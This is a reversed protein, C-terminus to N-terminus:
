PVKLFWVSAQDGGAWEVRDAARVDGGHAELAARVLPEVEEFGLPARSFLAFVREPGVADDLIISGPLVRDAGPEIAVSAGGDSPYLAGIVGSGDVSVVYVHSHGGADYRFQVQAGPGLPAGPEALAPGEAQNVYMRLAAGGGKLRHTDGAGDPGPLRWVAAAILLAFALPAWARPGRWWPATARTTPAAELAALIRASDGAVDTREAFAAQERELAELRPACTACGATHARLAEAEAGVLEGLALRRLAHLRTRCESSTM